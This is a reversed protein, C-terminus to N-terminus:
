IARVCRFGFSTGSSTPVVYIRKASRAFDALFGWAGGRLVRYDFTSSAPGHPDTGPSSLYYIQSYWDWCWECVNGAVDYLGYGNPAFSGVPSTYPLDGTAYAANHGAPGLDYPYVSPMSYYNAQGESITDGWPFRQGSSGGRAAKEWEAETPLRYGNANWAVFNTGLDIMGDRYVTTQSADTYYCPALGEMESRANCWKVADYWDVTQVPHTKGKGSVASEFGYGHNTAWQAVQQWRDLSVLNMDLYFRSVTVAHTPADADPDGDNADGMIFSGAPVLAMGPPGSPAAGLALVRYFRRPSAPSAADVFQYPSQAVVINTVVTWVAQTLNTKYQIQNTGGVDSQITLHPTAGTLTLSKILPAAGHAALATWVCLACVATANRDIRIRMKMMPTLKIKNHFPWPFSSGELSRRL